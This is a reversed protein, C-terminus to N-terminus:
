STKAAQNRRAEDPAQRACQDRVGLRRTRAREREREAALGDTVAGDGRWGCMGQAEM